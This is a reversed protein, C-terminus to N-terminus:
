PTRSEVVERNPPACDCANIIKVVENTASRIQSGTFQQCVRCQQIVRIYGKHRGLMTLLRRPTKPPGEPKLKPPRGPRKRGTNQKDRYRAVLMEHFGIQVAGTAPDKFVKGFAGKDLWRLITSHSVGFVVSLTGVAFKHPPLKHLMPHNTKDLRYALAARHRPGMDKPYVFGLFSLFQYVIKRPETIAPPPTPEDEGIKAGILVQGEHTRHVWKFGDQRVWMRIVEPTRQLIYGVDATTLYAAGGHYIKARTELVYTIDEDRILSRANKPLNDLNLGLRDSTIFANLSTGLTEM